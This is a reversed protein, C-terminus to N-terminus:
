GRSVPVLPALLVAIKNSFSPWNQVKPLISIVISPGAQLEKMGKDTLEIVASSELLQVAKVLGYGSWKQDNMEIHLGEEPEERNCSLLVYENTDFAHDAFGVNTIPGDEDVTVIKAQLKM